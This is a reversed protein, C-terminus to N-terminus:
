DRIKELLKELNVDTNVCGDKALEVFQVALKFKEMLEIGQMGEFFCAIGLVAKPKLEEILKGTAKGGKLIYVGKYGLKKAEVSIDKIKCKGCELCTYHSGNDKAICVQYNRLCHPVLIIRDSYKVLIFNKKNKKNRKIVANKFHTDKDFIRKCLKM